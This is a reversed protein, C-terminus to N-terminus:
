RRVKAPTSEDPTVTEGSMADVIAYVITSTAAVVAVTRLAKGSGKQHVELRELDAFPISVIRIEGSTEAITIAIEDTEVFIGESVQGGSSTIRVMEGTRLMTASEFEGEVPEFNWPKALERYGSCSSLLLLVVVSFALMAKRVM